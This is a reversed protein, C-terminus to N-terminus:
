GLVKEGPQARPREKQQPRKLTNREYLRATGEKACASNSSQILM